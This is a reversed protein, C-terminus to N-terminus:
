KKGEPQGQAVLREDRGGICLQSQLCIIMNVKTGAPVLISGPMCYYKSHHFIVMLM